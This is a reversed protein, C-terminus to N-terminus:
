VQKKAYEVLLTHLKTYSFLGFSQRMCDHFEQASMENFNIHELSDGVLGKHYKMCKPDQKLRKCANESWKICVDFKVKASIFPVQIIQEMKDRPLNLFEDSGYFGSSPHFASNFKNKVDTLNYKTALDHAIIINSAFNEILYESCATLCADVNYKHALHVVGEIYEMALGPNSFYFWKLFAKFATRSVDSITIAGIEPSSGFFMTHFVPSNAVLLIKHAWVNEDRYGATKVVFRVDATVIDLYLREM